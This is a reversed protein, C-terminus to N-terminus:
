TCYIIIIVKILLLVFYLLANRNIMYCRKSDFECEESEVKERM